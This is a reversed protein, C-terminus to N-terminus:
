PTVLVSKEPAFLDLAETLANVLMSYSENVPATIVDTWDYHLLYHNINFISDKKFIRRTEYHHDQMSENSVTLQAFCPYHDSMDDLIVYAKRALYSGKVLINDILTSTAHTVRTPKDIRPLMENAFCLELFDTVPAYSDIKLLDLNQDCGIIVNKRKLQVTLYKMFNLYASVPKNPVSYIEGIIYEKNNYM